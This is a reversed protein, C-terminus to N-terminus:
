QQELERMIRTMRRGLTVFCGFIIIVLALALLGAIVGSTTFFAALVLTGTMVAMRHPKAMPGMFRQRLGLSGGLVRVYATMVALVGALWGLEIGWSYCRIAYGAGVLVLCDSIRDPLDNFVEGSRSQTGGGVAVMGDLMNCLLRLQIGLAALLFFLSRWGPTAKPSVWLFLGTLAAFVVSLLSIQNPKVQRKILWDALWVAWKAQRTKLPRRVITESNADIQETEKMAQGM